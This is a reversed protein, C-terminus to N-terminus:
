FVAARAALRDGGGRKRKKICAGGGSESSKWFFRIRSQPVNTEKDGDDYDIDFTQDKRVVQITGGYYHGHGEFDAEVKDGIRSAASVVAALAGAHAAKQAAAAAEFGAKMAAAAAAPEEDSDQTLDVEAAAPALAPAAPKREAAQLKEGELKQRLDQVLLASASAAEMAAELQQALARKEVALAKKERELRAM